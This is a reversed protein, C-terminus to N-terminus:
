QEIGFHEQIDLATYDDDNDLAIKMCKRAVLEILKHDYTCPNWVKEGRRQPGYQEAAYVLAEDILQEVNILM